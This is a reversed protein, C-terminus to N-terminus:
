EYKFMKKGLEEGENKDKFKVRPYSSSNLTFKVPTFNVPPPLIQVKSPM